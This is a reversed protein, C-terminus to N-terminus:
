KARRMAEQVAQCVERPNALCLWDADPVAKADTRQFLLNGVAVIRDPLTASLYVERINRLPCQYCDERFVGKIRMVRRDTLIYLRGQWQFCAVAIRLTGVAVCTLAVMQGNVDYGPWTRAVLSIAAVAAVGALLPWSMLLVFWGSPRVALIIIEGDELRERAVTSTAAVSLSGPDALPTM